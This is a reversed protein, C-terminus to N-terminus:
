TLLLLKFVHLPKIQLTLAAYLEVCLHSLLFSIVRAASLYSLSSSINSSLDLILLTEDAVFLLFDHLHLKDLHFENLLQLVSLGNLLLSVLVQLRRNLLAAREAFVHHAVRAETTLAITARVEVWVIIWVDVTFHIASLISLLLSSNLDLFDFLLHM